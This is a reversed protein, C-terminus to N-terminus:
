KSGGSSTAAIPPAIGTCDHRVLVLWSDAVDHECHEVIKLDVGVGFMGHHM